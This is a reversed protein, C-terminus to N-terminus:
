HPESEVARPPPHVDGRADSVDAVDRGCEPCRGPSARLDYGCHPCLGHARRKLDRITRRVWAFPLISFLIVLFWFPVVVVLGRPQTEWGFGLVTNVPEIWAVNTSVTFTISVTSTGRSGVGATVVRQGWPYSQVSWGPEPLSLTSATFVPMPPRPVDLRQMCLGHPASMLMWAHRDDRYALQDNFRVSRMWLAVSGVLLALSVVALIRM